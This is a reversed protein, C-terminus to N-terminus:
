PATQALVRLPDIARGEFFMGFHLHPGTVRGTLGIVGLTTGAEVRQGTRVALAPALHWYLTQFGNGHDIIVGFATDGSALYPQGAAVVTGAAAAVVPAGLPTAFDVGDHFENGRPAFPSSVDGAVPM